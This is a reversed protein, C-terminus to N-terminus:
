GRGRRQRRRHDAQGCNYVQDLVEEGHRAEPWDTGTAASSVRALSARAETLDMGACFAPGTGTIIIARVAVDASARTVAASLQDLLDKSMPNRHAPNNLRIIAAPGRTDYGVLDSAM